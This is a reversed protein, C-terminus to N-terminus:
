RSKSDAADQKGQQLAKDRSAEKRQTAQQEKSDQERDGQGGDGAHPRRGQQRERIRREQEQWSGDEIRRLSHAIERYLDLHRHMVGLGVQQLHDLPLCGRWQGWKASEVSVLGDNWGERTEILKSPLYWVSWPDFRRWGSYSCYATDPLDLTDRNFEKAATTTLDLMGRFDLHFAGSILSVLHEIKFSPSYSSAADSSSPSSSSDADAQTLRITPAPIPLIREKQIQQVILDALPSGHHPSSITTLSLIRNDGSPQLHSILFRSDLGGMSHAILHFPGRYEALNIGASSLVTVGADEAERGGAAKVTKADRQAEQVDQRDGADVPTQKQTQRGDGSEAVLETRTATLGLAVQLAKARNEVKYSRPLVPVVVTYGADEYMRRLEGFYEFVPQSTWPNTLLSSYGLFGHVLVVPYRLSPLPGPPSSPTHIEPPPASPTYTLVSLAERAAKLPAPLTSEDDDDDDQERREERESSAKDSFAVACCGVALSSVASVAVALRSARHHWWWPTTQSLLLAPAIPRSSRAHPLSHLARSTSAAMLRVAAVCRRRMRLLLCPFSSSWSPIRPTSTNLYLSTADHQPASPPKSNLLTSPPRHVTSPSCSLHQLVLSYRNTRQLRLGGAARRGHLQWGECRECWRPYHMAANSLWRCGTEAGRESTRVHEM